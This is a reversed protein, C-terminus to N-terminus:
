DNRSGKGGGSLEDIYAIRGADREQGRESKEEEKLLVALV